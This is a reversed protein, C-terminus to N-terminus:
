HGVPTSFDDSREILWTMFEVIRNLMNHREHLNESCASISYAAVFASAMAVDWKTEGDVVRAIRTVLEDMQDDYDTRM